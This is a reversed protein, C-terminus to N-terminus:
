KVRDVFEVNRQLWEYKHSAWFVFILMSVFFIVVMATLDLEMIKFLAPTQIASSEFTVAIAGYINTAAHIGIALELRGDVVTCIGAFLGFTCYYILMKFTGFAAVEPNALHMLGFIIASIAIGALKSNFLLALQQLLYGRFIFEELTTQVPIMLFSVLLLPGLSKLDIQALYNSPDLLYLVLEALVMLCFWISFSLIIRHWDIKHDPSILSLVSRQHISRYAVLLMLMGGVFSLLLLVLLYIQALRGSGDSATDLDDVWTLLPIQGIIVGFFVLILMALVRLIGNKGSLAANVFMFM